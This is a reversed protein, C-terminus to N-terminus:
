RRRRPRGTREVVAAEERGQDRPHRVSRVRRRGVVRCPSEAVQAVLAQLGPGEGDRSRGQVRGRGREQRRLSAQGRLRAERLEGGRDGRYWDQLRPDPRLAQPQGALAIRRPLVRRLPLLRLESARAEAHELGARQRRRRVGHARGSWAPRDSDGISGM